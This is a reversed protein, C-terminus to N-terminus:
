SSAHLTHSLKRFWSFFIFIFYYYCNLKFYQPTCIVNVIESESKCVCLCLSELFFSINLFKVSCYVKDILVEKGQSAYLSWQPSGGAANPCHSPLAKGRAPAPTDSGPM